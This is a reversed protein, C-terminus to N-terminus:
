DQEGYGEAGMEKIVEPEGLLGTKVTLWVHVQLTNGGKKDKLKPCPTMEKEGEGCAERSLRGSM